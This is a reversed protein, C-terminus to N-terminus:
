ERYWRVRCFRQWPFHQIELNGEYIKRFAKGIREALIPTTTLIKIEDGYDELATLRSLPNSCRAREEENSILDLAASKSPVLLRSQLIVEGEYVGRAVKLCGPCLALRVGPESELQRYEQEDVYWVNDRLIAHCAPCIFAHILGKVEDDRRGRPQPTPWEQNDRWRVRGRMLRRGENHTYCRGGGQLM